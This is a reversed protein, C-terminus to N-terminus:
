LLTKEYVEHLSAIHKDISYIAKVAAADARAKAKRDDLHAILDQMKDCCDREDGTKFLEFFRGECSIEKMVDWDNAIVPLGASLAEIVAIGFTDRVTSFVFGDLHQLIAPVDGRSGLFHVIPSLGNEHCYAVCADYLGPEAESQKGIFYFRFDAGREKLLKLAKCVVMQSRGNVFNGVMGLRVAQGSEQFFDPEPHPMELKEFHIGNYIMHCKRRPCPLTHRFYWDRIYGSVFISADSCWIALHRALWNSRSSFLGHFTFVLKVRSCATCLIGFLANTLTQAHLIEVDEHKLLQRLKKLYQLKSGQPKIRYLPVGTAKYADSLEGENRYILIPEFPLTDKRRFIDLTLMETGGRNLSGIFFAVKM